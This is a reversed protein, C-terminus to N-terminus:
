GFAPIRAIGAFRAALDEGPRWRPEVSRRGLAVSYDALQRGFRLQREEWAALAADPAGPHAAISAALALADEAAKATAAAAHPRLVFAADGLLCTRGFAMRPVVVDLIAQLFPEATAAVLEAFRPHLERVATARLEAVLPDPVLGPGVSIENPRGTRDTLLRQLAAADPVPVYWVWNIRRRGAETADGAGPILYCLIHGGSRAAGFAVADDFSRVLAPPASAEELTGRWAVYGAQRPATEPLLRRRAGSRSGDACVLLDAAVAHGEAFRAAVGDADAAFDALTSAGHYHADPFGARLTRYIASWSTFRHVQAESVGDGGEPDLALRRRCATAPLDPAGHGRLLRLLAEQVVIGAGRSALAGASHEYIEVACGIGRLALGACLGGISGGVV